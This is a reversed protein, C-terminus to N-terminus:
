GEYAFKVNEEEIEESEQEEPYEDVNAIDQSYHM